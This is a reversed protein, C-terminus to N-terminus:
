DVFKNDLLRLKMQEVSEDVNLLSTNLFKQAKSVDLTLDRPRVLDIESQLGPWVNPGAINIFGTFATNALELVSQAITDVWIPCRIEDTFLIV